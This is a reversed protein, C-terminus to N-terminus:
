CPTSGLFNLRAFAGHHELAAADYAKAAELDTAFSGLYTPKGAIRIHARWPRATHAQKRAFWVGKYKSTRAGSFKRRNKMNDAHTCIRLNARRNDCPDGNIHDILDGPKAELLERHLRRTKGRESRTVYGDDNLRWCYQSAWAHDSADVLVPRGSAILTRIGEPNGGFAPRNEASRPASDGPIPAGYRSAVPQLEKHRSLLGPDCLTRSPGGNEAEQGMNEAGEM